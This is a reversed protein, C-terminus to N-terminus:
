EGFRQRSVSATVKGECNTPFVRVELSIGPATQVALLSPFTCAPKGADPQPCYDKFESVPFSHTFELFDIDRHFNAVVLRPFIDHATLSVSVFSGDPPSVRLDFVEEVYFLRFAFTAMPSM